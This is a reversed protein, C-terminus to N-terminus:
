YQKELKLKRLIMIRIFKMLYWLRWYLKLLGFPKNFPYELLEPWEKKM